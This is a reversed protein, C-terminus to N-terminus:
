ELRMLPETGRSRQVFQLSINGYTYVHIWYNVKNVRISTEDVHIMPMRLLEKIKEAEWKALSLYFSMIYKLMTAQSIFRGILGQFHESCREYSFMKVMLYNIIAAKIGIGYQLKGDM